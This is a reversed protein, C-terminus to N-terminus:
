VPLLIQRCVIKHGLKTPELWFMIKEMFFHFLYTTVATDCDCDDDDDDDYQLVCSDPGNFLYSIFLYNAHYANISLATLM